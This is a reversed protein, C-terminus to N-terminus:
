GNEHTAAVRGQNKWMDLGFCGPRKVWVKDGSVDANGKFM